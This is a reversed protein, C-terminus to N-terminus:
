LRHTHLYTYNFVCDLCIWWCGWSTKDSSEYSLLAQTVFWVSCETMWWVYCKLKVIVNFDSMTGNRWGSNTSFRWNAVTSPRRSVRANEERAKAVKSAIAYFSKSMAPFYEWYGQTPFYYRKSLHRTWGRM